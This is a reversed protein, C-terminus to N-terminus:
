CLCKLFKRCWLESISIWFFVPTLDGNRLAENDFTEGAEEVLM